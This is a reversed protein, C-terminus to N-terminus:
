RKSLSRRCLSLVTRIIREAVEREDNDRTFKLLELAVASIVDEDVKFEPEM